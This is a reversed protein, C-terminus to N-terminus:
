RGDRWWGVVIDIAAFVVFVAFGVLGAWKLDWDM